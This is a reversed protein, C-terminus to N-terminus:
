AEPLGEVRKADALVSLHREIKQVSDAMRELAAAGRSSSAEHVANDIAKHAAEIAEKIENSM